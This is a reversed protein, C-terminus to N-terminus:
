TSRERRTLSIWARIAVLISRMSKSDADRFQMFRRAARYRALLDFMLLAVGQGLYDPVTGPKVILDYQLVSVIDSLAAAAGNMWVFEERAMREVMLDRNRILRPSRQHEHLEDGLM